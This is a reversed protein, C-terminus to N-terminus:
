QGADPKSPTLVVEEGDPFFLVIPKGNRAARRMANMAFDTDAAVMVADNPYPWDIPETLEADLRARRVEEGPTLQRNNVEAM